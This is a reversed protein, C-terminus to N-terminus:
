AGPCARDRDAERKVESEGIRARPEPIHRYRHLPKTKSTNQSDTRDLRIMGGRPKLEAKCLARKGDEQGREPRDTSGTICGSLSWAWFSVQRM